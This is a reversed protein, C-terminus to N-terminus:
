RRLLELEQEAHTAREEAARARAALHDVCECREPCLPTPHLGMAIRRRRSRRDQLRRLWPDARKLLFAVGGIMPVVGAGTAIVEPAGVAALAAMVAGGVTAVLVLGGGAIVVNVWRPLEGAIYALHEDYTRRRAM